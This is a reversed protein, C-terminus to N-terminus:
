APVSSGEAAPVGHHWLGLRDIVKAPAPLPTTATGTIAYRPVPLSTDMRIMSRWALVQSWDSSIAGGKRGQVRGSAPPDDLALGGALLSAATKAGIGRV